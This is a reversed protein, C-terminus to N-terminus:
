CRTIKTSKPTKQHFFNEIKTTKPPKKTSCKQDFNPPIKTSKKQSNQHLKPPNQHFKTSKPTIEFGYYNIMSEISVDDNKPSCINKRNLHNILSSKFQTEYGCRFCKYNVMIIIYYIKFKLYKKKVYFYM